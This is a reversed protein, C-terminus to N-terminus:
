SPDTRETEDNADPVATVSSGSTSADEEEEVKSRRGRQRNNSSTTTTSDTDDVYIRVDTGITACVTIEPVAASGNSSGSASGGMMSDSTNTSMPSVDESRAAREVLGSKLKSPRRENIISQVDLDDSVRREDRSLAGLRGNAM